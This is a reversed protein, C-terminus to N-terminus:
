HLLSVEIAMRACSETSPGFIKEWADIAQQDRITIAENKWYQWVLIYLFRSTLVRGNKGYWQTAAPSDNLIDNM